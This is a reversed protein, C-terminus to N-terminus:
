LKRIFARIKRILRVITGPAKLSPVGIPVVNNRTETRTPKLVRRIDQQLSLITQVDDTCRHCRFYHEEFRDREEQSMEGLVYRLAAESEVASDHDM